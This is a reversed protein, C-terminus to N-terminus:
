HVASDNAPDTTPGGPVKLPFWLAELVAHGKEGRLREVEDLLRVADCPWPEKDYVCRQEYTGDLLPYLPIRHKARMAALDDPSLEATM